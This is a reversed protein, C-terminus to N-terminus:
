ALAELCGEPEFEYQCDQLYELGSLLELLPPLGFHGVFEAVTSTAFTLGALQAERSQAHQDALQQSEQPSLGICQLWHPKLDWALAYVVLSAPTLTKKM